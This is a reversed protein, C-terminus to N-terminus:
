CKGYQLVTFMYPATVLKMDIDDWDTQMYDIWCYVKQIKM